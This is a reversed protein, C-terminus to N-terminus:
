NSGVRIIIILLPICCTYISLIFFRVLAPEFRRRSCWYGGGHDDTMPAHIQDPRLRLKFRQMNVLLPSSGPAVHLEGAERTIYTVHSTKIRCIKM